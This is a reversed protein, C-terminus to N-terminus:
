TARGPRRRRGRRGAPAGERRRWGGACSRWTGRTRGCRRWGRTARCTSCCGGSGRCGPTRATSCPSRATSTASSRTCGRSGWRRFRAATRGRSARACCGGCRPRTGGRSRRRSRTGWLVGGYPWREALFEAAAADGRGQALYALALGEHVQPQDPREALLARYMRVAADLRGAGRYADARDRLVAASLPDLRYASDVYAAAEAARGLTAAMRARQLLIPVSAPNLALARGIEGFAERWRREDYALVHALSARADALAPDLALAREAALRQPRTDGVRGLVDALGAWAPAYAPDRAIARRFAEAARANQASDFTGANLFHYRGQLYLDYAAPDVSARGRAATAGAATRRVVRPGVADVVQRRIEDQVALVGRAREDFSRSWVRLGTAADVLQVTVRLRDGDRRVSGEVVHTARLTRALDAVSAPRGRFAFSSTRAVVGVGDVAGLGAILEDALGEGFYAQDGRESLDSFPLVAVVPAAPAAAARAAPAPRGSAWPRVAAGVVVGLAGTAALAL